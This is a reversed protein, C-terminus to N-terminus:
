AEEGPGAIAVAAAAAVGELHTLTILIRVVGLERARELAAGSLEVRPSGAPGRRVEVDRWNLRPPGDGLSKFVAEKAAFRAALRQARLAGRGAAAAEAPSFIRDIFAPGWRGEARAIRAVEILDLGVGAVREGVPEPTSM